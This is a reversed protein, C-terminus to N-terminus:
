HKINYADENLMHVQQFFIVFLIVVLITCLQCDAIAKAKKSLITKFRHTNNTTTVM